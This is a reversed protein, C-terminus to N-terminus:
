MQSPLCCTEIYGDERSSLGERSVVVKRSGVLGCDFSDSGGLLDDDGGHSWALVKDEDTRFCVDELLVIDQLNRCSHSCALPTSDSHSM